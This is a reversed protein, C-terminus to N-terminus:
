RAAGTEPWPRNRKQNALAERAIKV